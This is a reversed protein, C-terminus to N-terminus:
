FVLKFVVVTGQASPKGDETMVPKRCYKYKKGKEKFTQYFINFYINLHIKKRKRAESVMTEAKKEAQLLQQIGQSQSAM